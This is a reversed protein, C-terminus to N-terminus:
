EVLPHWDNPVDLILDQDEVMIMLEMLMTKALDISQRGAALRWPLQNAESILIM